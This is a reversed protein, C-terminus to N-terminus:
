GGNFRGLGHTKSVLDILSSYKWRKGNRAAEPELTSKIEEYCSLFLGKELAALVLPDTRMEVDGNLFGMTRWAHLTGAGDFGIKIVELLIGVTVADPKMNRASLEFFLIRLHKFDKMKLHALLLVNILTLSWPVREEEMNEIITDIGRHSSLCAHSLLRLCWSLVGIETWPHNVGLDDLRSFMFNELYLSAMKRILDETLTVKSNLARVYAREMKEVIGFDMYVKLISLLTSPQIYMRKSLLTRTFREMHHILGGRSYERILLNYTVHDSLCGCAEMKRVCLNMEDFMRNGGYARILVKFTHVDPVIDQENVLYLFFSVEKFRGMNALDQLMSNYTALCASPSSTKMEKLTSAADDLLGEQCLLVTMKHYNFETTRSPKINKWAEFLPLIQHSRSAHRLFEVVAWFLDESWDGDHQLLRLPSSGKVLLRGILSTHSSQENGPANLLCRTIIGRSRSQPKKLSAERVQSKRILFINTITQSAMGPKPNDSSLMPSLGYFCPKLTTANAIRCLDM